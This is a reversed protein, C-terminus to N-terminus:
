AGPAPATAVAADPHRADEYGRWGVAIGLLGLAAAIGFVGPFGIPAHLLGGAVNVIIGTIGFLVTQLLTQGTAQLEAPLLSRITLVGCIMMAAYALGSFGRFVVLAPVTPSVAWGVTVAVMVLSGALFLPRLGFRRAFWGALIMGPVEVLASIGGALGVDAAGGGLEVIRLGLLTNSASYGLVVLGSGILIKPLAPALRLSAAVAGTLVAIPGPRGQGDGLELRAVDPLRRAFLPLLLGAACLAVAAAAMGTVAYVVGALIAAGAYAGSVIVRIRAYRGPDHLSSVIIADNLPLWSLVFAWGAVLAIAALAPPLGIAIAGTLLGGVVGCIALMRPRGTTTDAVQGILPVGITYAFAGAGMVVGVAAVDLGAGMLVLAVYPWFLGLGAGVWLSTAVLEGTAQRTAPSEPATM